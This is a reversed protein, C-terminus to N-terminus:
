QKTFILAFMSDGKCFFKFAKLNRKNTLYQSLINVILKLKLNLCPYPCWLCQLLPSFSEQIYTIFGRKWLCNTVRGPVM